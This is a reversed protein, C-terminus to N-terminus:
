EDQGTLLEPSRPPDAQREVGPLEPVAADPAALEQLKRASVMVRTDLSRMAKNYAEVGRDLARGLSQFHDAMTMLREFVDRGLKAIEQAEQAVQEQRWGYAVTKLLAILTTPTAVVVGGNAADGILEPDQELAASFFSEGPLFLVVFEPTGPFSQAYGKAGLKRIHERVQRAHRLLGERRPADETAEVATLYADLPCKADVIITRGNPLRVLLDPRLRGEEGSTSVQLEFDVYATMGAFEVARQLQLEGWRGRVEPKRLAQVLSTTETSWRQQAEQLARVQETLQSYAGARTKEIEQLKGDLHRLNEQLPKVLGDIAQQRKELDGKAGEELRAFKQQALELFAANNQRLAEGSLAKFTGELQVRLERLETLKEEAARQEMERRAKQDALALELEGARTRLTEIQQLHQAREALVTHLQEERAALATRAPGLRLWAWVALLGMGVSVLLLLTVWVEM